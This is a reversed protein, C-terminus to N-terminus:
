DRIIQTLVSMIRDGRLPSKNLIAQVRNELRAIDDSSLDMSSIIAVPINKSHPLAALRDLFEFGNMEPMKLDLLIALPRFKGLLDLGEKGNEALLVKWGNKEVIRSVIDRVLPDDDILLVLDQSEEETGEPSEAVGAGVLPEHITDSYGGESRVPIEVTFTSGRDPESVVQVQGDLVKALRAAIALGLGTGGYARTNTSDAQEFLGWISSLQEASMGIGTDGVAFCIYDQGDVSKQGVRLNVEGAQTFKFANELILLLCRRIHNSDSAIVSLECEVDCSFKIESDKAVLEFRMQIDRVFPRLEFTQIDVAIEGADLRAVEIVNSILSLLRHGAKNIKEIDDKTNISEGEELDELLMDSYGIIANLPTKLEHSMNSLFRSKAMNAREAEAKAEKLSREIAARDSIDRFIAVFMKQQGAAFVNLSMDMPFQSGNKKRGQMERQVGAFHSDKMGMMRVVISDSLEAINQPLLAKVHINFLEDESYDFLLSAAHNSMQIHGSEDFILIGDLASDFIAQLRDESKAHAQVATEVQGRASRVKELHYQSRLLTRVHSGHIVFGAATYALVLFLQNGSLNPADQTLAVGLTAIWVSVVVCTFWTTSTLVYGAVVLIIGLYNVQVPDELLIMHSVVNVVAVLSVVFGYASMRQTPIGRSFTIFAIATLFAVSIAALTAMWIRADGDLLWIHGLFAALYFIALAIASVHVGDRAAKGILDLEDEREVTASANAFVRM